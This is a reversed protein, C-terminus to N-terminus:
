GNVSESVEYKRGIYIDIISEWTLVEVETEAMTEELSIM